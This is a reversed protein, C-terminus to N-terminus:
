MVPRKPQDGIGSLDADEDYIRLPMRHERGGIRGCGPDADM